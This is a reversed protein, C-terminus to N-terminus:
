LEKPTTTIGADTLSDVVVQWISPPLILTASNSVGPQRVEVITFDGGGDPDVRVEFPAQDFFQITTHM